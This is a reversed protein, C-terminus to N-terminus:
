VFHTASFQTKHPSRRNLCHHPRTLNARIFLLPIANPQNNALATFHPGIALCRAKRPDLPVLLDDLRLQLDVLIALRAVEEGPRSFAHRVALPIGCGGLAVRIKGCMPVMVSSQAIWSSRSTASSALLPV